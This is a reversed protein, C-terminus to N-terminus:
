TEVLSYRVARCECFDFSDLKLDSKRTPSNPFDFIKLEMKVRAADFTPM